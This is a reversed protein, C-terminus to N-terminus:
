RVSGSVLLSETAIEAEHCSGGVAITKAHQQVTDIPRTLEDIIDILTQELDAVGGTMLSALFADSPDDTVHTNMAATLRALRVVHRPPLCGDRSGTYVHTMFDRLCPRLDHLSESPTATSDRLHALALRLPDAAADITVACEYAFLHGAVVTLLWILAPHTEPVILVHEVTHFRTQGESAIVVPISTNHEGLIDVIEHLDNADAGEVGAACVVIMGQASPDIHTAVTRYCLTSLTSRIEAAAVKQPGSGLVAWDRTRTALARATAHFPGRDSVLKEIHGGLNELDGLLENAVDDEAPERNLRRLELALLIGATVQSYFAKTSPGAMEIDRDGCTYLVGDSQTALASDRGNVISIVAAGRARAIDVARNTETTAGSHSVAVVLCDRMNADLQRASLEDAPMASVSIRTALLQRATVAIGECALAAAGHGVIIIRTIRGYLLATAVTDPVARGGLRVRRREDLGVVIRGRLTKSVSKSAQALEKLMFHPFANRDVDRASIDATMIESLSVPRPEGQISYRSLGTIEGAGDRHLAMLADREGSDTGPTGDVRLYRDAQGVLASPESAVVWAGASFGVYLTPGSGRAALLLTDPDLESLAAIAFSGELSRVTDAFGALSRRREDATRALLVPVSQAQTSTVAGHPLGETARPHNEIDGTLVAVTHPQKDGTPHASADGVLAANLETVEGSGAGRTHALVSVKAQPIHLARALLRDRRIAERLTRVNDGIQGTHVSAQYTFALGAATGAASGSILEKRARNALRALGPGHVWVHVGASDRGPAVLRDIGRLATEIAGYGTVASLPAIAPEDSGVTRLFQRLAGIRNLRDHRLTWLSDGIRALLRQITELQTPDLGGAIADIRCEAEHVDQELRSTVAHMRAVLEHNTLLRQEANPSSLLYNTTTITGAALRLTREHCDTATPPPVSTAELTRALAILDPARPPAPVPIVAVIGCM